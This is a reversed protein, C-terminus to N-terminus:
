QTFPEYSVSVRRPGTLKLDIVVNDALSVFALPWGNNAQLVELYLPRFYDSTRGRPDFKFRVGFIPYTRSNCLEAWELNASGRRELVAKAPHTWRSIEVPECGTATARYLHTDKLRPGPAEASQAIGGAAALMFAGLL